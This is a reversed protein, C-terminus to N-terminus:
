AAMCPVLGPWHASECVGATAVMTPVARALLDVRVAGLHGVRTVAADDVAVALPLVLAATSPVSLVMGVPVGVGTALTTTATLRITAEAAATVM